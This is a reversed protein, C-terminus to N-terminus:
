RVMIKRGARIYIGPSATEPNVERGQLDYMPASADDTVAKSSGAVGSNSKKRLCPNVMYDVDPFCEEHDEIWGDYFRDIAGDNDAYWFAVPDGNVSPCSMLADRYYSFMIAGLIGTAFSARMGVITYDSVYSSYFVTGCKFYVPEGESDQLTQVDELDFYMGNDKGKIWADPYAEFIGKIYIDNNDRVVTVDRMIDHYEPGSYELARCRYDDYTLQWAEEALGAPPVIPGIADSDPAFTTVITVIAMLKLISRM